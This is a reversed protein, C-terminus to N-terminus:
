IKRLSDWFMPFKPSQPQKFCVKILTMAITFFTGGTGDALEALVGDQIQEEILVFQMKLPSVPGSNSADYVSPVYLGRADIANIVINAKSARDIIDGTQYMSPTVFFGPSMMVIIRQGPLGSMRKILADINSFAFQMESEGLTLARQAATQVLASAAPGACAAADSIAVALATPDNAEIIQYAEYLTM